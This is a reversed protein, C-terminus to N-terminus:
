PSVSARVIRSFSTPRVVGNAKRIAQSVTVTGSAYLSHRLHLANLSVEYLKLLPMMQMPSLIHHLFQHLLIQLVPHLHVESPWTRTVICCNSLTNRVYSNM